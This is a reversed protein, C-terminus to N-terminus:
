IWRRKVAVVGTAVGLAVLGLACGTAAREATSAKVSIPVNLFGGVFNIITSLGLLRSAHTFLPLLGQAPPLDNEPVLCSLVGEAAGAELEGMRQRAAESRVKPSTRPRANASTKSFAPHEPFLIIRGDDENTAEASSKHEPVNKVVVAVGDGGEEEEEEEEVVEEEKEAVAVMDEKIEEDKESAEAKQQRSRSTRSIFGRGRRSRSKKSGGDNIIGVGGASVLADVDMEEEGEEEEEREEKEDEEDLFEEAAGVVNEDALGRREFEKMNEDTENVSGGVESDKQVDM